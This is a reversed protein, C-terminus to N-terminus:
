PSSNIIIKDRRDARVQAYDRTTETFYSQYNEKIRDVVSHHVNFKRAIDEMNNNITLETIIQEELEASIKKGRM